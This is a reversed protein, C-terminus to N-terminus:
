QKQKMMEKVIRYLCGNRDLDWIKRKLKKELKELKILTLAFDTKILSEGRIKPFFNRNYSILKIPFQMLNHMAIDNRWNKYKQFEQFFSTIECLKAEHKNAGFNCDYVAEACRLLGICMKSNAYKCKDQNRLFSPLQKFSPDREVDNVTFFGFRNRM